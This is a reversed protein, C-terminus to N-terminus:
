KKERSVVKRQVSALAGRLINLEEATLQARDFLRRLKLMIKGPHKKIIFGSESLTEELHRYFRERDEISPSEAEVFVDRSQDSAARKYIEYCLTQVAAALKATYM